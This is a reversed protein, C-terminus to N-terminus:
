YLSAVPIRGPDSFPESLSIIFFIELRKHQIIIPIPHEGARMLTYWGTEYRSYGNVCHEPNLHGWAASALLRAAKCSKPNSAGEREVECDDM